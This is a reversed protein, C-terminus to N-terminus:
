IEVKMETSSLAIAVRILGGQARTILGGDLDAYLPTATTLSSKDNSYGQMTVGGIANTLTTDSTIGIIQKFTNTPGYAEFVMDQTGNDFSIAYVQPNVKVISRHAGPDSNASTLVDTGIVSPVTGTVRGIGSYTNSADEAYMYAFTDSGLAEVDPRLGSGGATVTHLTVPTNLTLTTGSRSVTVAKLSTTETYLLIAKTSELGGIDLEVGATASVVTIPTGVTFTTGDFQICVAKQNNSSDEYTVVFYDSEGLRKVDYVQSVGSGVVSTASGATITASAVTLKRVKLTGGASDAYVSMAVTDSYRSLVASTATADITTAGNVAVTGNLGSIVRGLVSGGNLYSCIASNNALPCLRGFSGASVTGTSGTAFSVPDNTVISSFYLVNGGGAGVALMTCKFGTIEDRHGVIVAEGRTHSVSDNITVGTSAAAAGATFRPPYFKGDSEIAAIEGETMDWGATFRQKLSIKSASVELGTSPDFILYGSTTNGITMLGDMAVSFPAQDFDRHGVQIGLQSIVFVENGAGYLWFPGKYNTGQEEALKRVDEESLPTQVIQDPIWAQKYTDFYGAAGSSQQNESAQVSAAVDPEVAYQYGNFDEIKDENDM